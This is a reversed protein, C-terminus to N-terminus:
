PTVILLLSESSSSVPRAHAPTELLMGKAGAQYGQSLCLAATHVRSRIPRSGCQGGACLRQSEGLIQKPLDHGKVTTHLKQSALCRSGSAQLVFLPPGCGSSAAGLAYQLAYVLDEALVEPTHENCACLGRCCCHRARRPAWLHIVIQLHAILSPTACGCQEQVRQVRASEWFVM